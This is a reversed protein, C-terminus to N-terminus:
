DIYHYCGDKFKKRKRAHTYKKNPNRTYSCGKYHQGEFSKDYGIWLILFIFLIM